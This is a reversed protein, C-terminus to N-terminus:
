YSSPAPYVARMRTARFAALQFEVHGARTIPVMGAPVISSFYPAYGAVINRSLGGPPVRVLILVNRGIFRAPPDAYTFHRPDDSLCVVPTGPGMAYGIKAADIWHTAAVIQTSDVLLGREALEPRLDTWDHAELSPDGRTFWSPEVRAIWGTAVDSAAVATLALFAVAAAALWRHLQQRQRQGRAERRAAADGLLPLLLLYGPAPWHPLGPNGGLSILTFLVVPGAGLCLLLWRASDRPGGRLARFMQYVLPVWIWPLLYGAQGALNQLLATLHHAHTPLGRGGQFRFSAFAHQANWMLDPAFLALAIATAVYPEPRALWRRAERRTLVFAVTGALLFAGHYKSLMAIGTGLGALVWWRWARPRSPDVLVHTLALAAALMACDLPGDPLIWGGTSLSFVPALNLLLAGFMGARAGFLRAGLRFMLWTTGAFTLIFPLRLLVRNESHVLKALVGAMWFSLPPHDLYGWSLARSVVVEYSEDVGLGLTAALIVRGVIGAVIIAIVVRVEPSLRGPPAGVDPMRTLRMSTSHSHVDAIRMIAPDVAGTL